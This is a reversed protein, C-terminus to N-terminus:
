GDLYEGLEEELEKLIKSRPLIKLAVALHRGAEVKMDMELYCAARRRAVEGTAARDLGLHEARRLYELAVRPDTDKGVKKLLLKRARDRAEPYCPRHSQRASETRLLDEYWELARSRQKVGEHYEGILFCSDVFEDSTLHKRLFLRAGPGLEELRDLAEATRQELLLFLISRAKAAPRESETVHPLRSALEERYVINWMRDYRDRSDPQSLVEQAELLLRMEDPDRPFESKDPHVELLKKRFAAKIQDSTCDVSLGLISYYDQFESM